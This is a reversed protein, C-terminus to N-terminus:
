RQLLADAVREVGRGDVAGFAKAALAARAAPDTLLGRLTAVASEELAGLRGLGAALGAAVTRDYGLEQNDVVWVLAAPLGLCLLEWTSTGSASIALDAGALLAPLGDTPDIVTLRQGPAPTLAALEARLGADAAVITADCPAGTAVLLRGLVPAARYADTGGFFCVVRPPGGAPLRPAAPRLERVAHRLLAYPLGALRTAGPPLPPALLEADLNQDVYVDAVQGRLDGDVIALVRVGAARLDAGVAPDLTYSDLVVADGALEGPPRLPLGRSTLQSAAWPVGAVDGHFTVAVGRRVLEEALAVCRVLHGVGRERGADCRIGVRM